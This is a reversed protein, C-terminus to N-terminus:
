TSSRPNLLKGVQGALCIIPSHITGGRKKNQSQFFAIWLSVTTHDPGIFNADLYDDAGVAEAMAQDLFTRQGKFSDLQMPFNDLSQLLQVPPAQSIRLAVPGCLMVIALAAVLYPTFSTPTERAPEAETTPVDDTTPSAAPPRLYDLIWNIGALIAFCFVFILWGTFSHWFGEQLAPYLGM